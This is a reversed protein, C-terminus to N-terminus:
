CWLSVMMMVVHLGFVDMAEGLLVPLVQQLAMARQIELRHRVHAITIRVVPWPRLYADRHHGARVTPRGSVDDGIVLFDEIEGHDGEVGHHGGECGGGNLGDEGLNGFIQTNRDVPRRVHERELYGDQATCREEPAGQGLTEAPAGDEEDRQDATQDAVNAAGHARRVRGHRQAPSDRGPKDRRRGRETTSNDGLGEELLFPRSIDTDPRDHDRQAHRDSWENETKDSHPNSVAPDVPDHGNYAM